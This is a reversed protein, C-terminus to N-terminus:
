ININSMIMAMPYMEAWAQRVESPLLPKANGAQWIRDRYFRRVEAVM